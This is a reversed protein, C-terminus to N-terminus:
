KKEKNEIRKKKQFVRKKKKSHRRSKKGGSRLVRTRDVMPISKEKTHGRSKPRIGMGGKGKLNGIKNKKPMGRGGRRTPKVKKDSSRYYKGFNAKTKM